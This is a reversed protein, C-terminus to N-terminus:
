ASSSASAAERGRADMQGTESMTTTCTKWGAAGSERTREGEAVGDTTGGEGSFCRRRRVHAAQCRM